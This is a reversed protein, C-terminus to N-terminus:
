WEKEIQVKTSEKINLKKQTKKEDNNLAQLIKEADEKSIKDKKPQEKKQQDEKAQDQKKEQEKQQQEKQQKDQQDKKQQDKQDKNQDKDKNKDDNQQQQQQQQQQLLKAQAYALNYRTDNDKPNLKLAQKYAEIGEQYKKDKVYSNGLNHMTKSLDDANKAKTGAANMYQQSAQEFKGEQYYANGLNYNGEFPHENKELAKKYELEAEGYKKAEYKQNGDHILKKSSQAFIFSPSILLIFLILRSKFLVKMQEVKSQIM